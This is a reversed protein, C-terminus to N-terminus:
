LLSDSGRVEACAPQCREAELDERSRWRKGNGKGEESGWGGEGGTRERRMRPRRGEREEGGM